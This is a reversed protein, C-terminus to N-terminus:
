YEEQSLSEDITSEVNGDLKIDNAKPVPKEGSDRALLASEGSMMADFAKAKLRARTEEIRKRMEAQDIAGGERAAAPAPPEDVVPESELAAVPAVVTPEPEPVTEAVVAAVASAPEAAPEVVEAVPEAAEAVIPEAESVAPEPEVVPAFESVAAPEEQAVAFGASTATEAVLGAAADRVPAAEIVTEEAVAEEAVVPASPVEDVVAPEAPVEEVMAEAIEPTAVAAATEAVHTEDGYQIEWARPREDRVEEVVVPEPEEPPAAYAPGEVVPVEAVVEQADEVEAVPIEAETVPTEVEDVRAEASAEEAVVEPEAVLAGFPQAIDNEIAVRTEEIRARLDDSGPQEDPEEVAPEAVEPEEVVMPPEVAAEDVVMEDVITEEVVVAEDTVITDEVKVVDEVVEGDEIVVTEETIIQEFVPEAGFDEAPPAEEVVAEEVVTEAVITEEVFVPPEAVAVAPGAEWAREGEPAPFEVPAAPLLRRTAGGILQERMERGSKPAFLVAVAAGVSLGLLIKMLRKM